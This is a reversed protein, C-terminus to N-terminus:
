KKCRNFWDCSEFVRNGTPSSSLVSTRRMAASIPKGLALFFSEVPMQKMPSRGNRSNQVAVNCLFGAGDLVVFSAGDTLVHAQAKVGQTLALAEADTPELGFARLPPPSCVGHNTARLSM